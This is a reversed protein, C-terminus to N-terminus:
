HADPDKYDKSDPTMYTPAKYTTKVTNGFTSPHKGSTCSASRAVAADTSQTQMQGSMTVTVTVIVTDHEM